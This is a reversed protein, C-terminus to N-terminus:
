TTPWAKLRTSVRSAAQSANAPTRKSGTDHGDVFSGGSRRSLFRPPSPPGNEPHRRRGRRGQQDRLDAPQGSPRAVGDASVDGVVPVRRRREVRFDAPPRAGIDRKLERPGTASYDGRMTIGAGGSGWAEQGAGSGIMCLSTEGAEPRGTGWFSADGGSPEARGELAAAPPAAAAGRRPNAAESSPHAMQSPPSRMATVARPSRVPTAPSPRQVALGRSAKSPRTAPSAMCPRPSARTVASAARAM